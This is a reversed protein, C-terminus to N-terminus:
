GHRTHGGTQLCIIKIILALSSWGVVQEKKKIGVWRWELLHSSIMGTFVKIM